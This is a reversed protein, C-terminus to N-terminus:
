WIVTGKRSSCIISDTADAYELLREGETNREGEYGMTSRGIHWDGCPIVTESKGLKTAVELLEDYFRDNNDELGAQSAYMSIFTVIGDGVVMKLLMIRYTVRVVESKEHILIGAGSQSGSWFFELM